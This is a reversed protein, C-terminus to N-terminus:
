IIIDLGDETTINFNDETAIPVDVLKGIVYIDDLSVNDYDIYKDFFTIVVDNGIDEVKYNGPVHLGYVLVEFNNPSAGETGYDTHMNYIIISNASNDFANAKVKITTASHQLIELHFNDITNKNNVIKTLNPNSKTRGGFKTPIRVDLSATYAYAISASLENPLNSYGDQGASGTEIESLPNLITGRGDLSASLNIQIKYDDILNDLYGSGSLNNLNIQKIVRNLKRATSNFQNLM